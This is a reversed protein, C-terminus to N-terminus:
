LESEGCSLVQIFGLDYTAWAGRTDTIIVSLQLRYENSSDGLPPLVRSKPHRGFFLQLDESVTEGEEQDFGLATVSFNFFHRPWIQIYEHAFIFAAPEQFCDGKMRILDLRQWLVFGQWIVRDFQIYICPLHELNKLSVILMKWCSFVVDWFVTQKSHIIVHGLRWGGGGM